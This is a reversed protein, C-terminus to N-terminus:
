GSARALQGFTSDTLRSSHASEGRGASQSGWEHIGYEAQVGVNKNFYYAVSFLGGLNVADYNATVTNSSGFLPTTVKGRPALYSYGAFIDWKSPNAGSSSKGSSQASLAIPTLGVLVLALARSVSRISRSYM